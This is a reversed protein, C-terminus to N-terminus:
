LHFTFPRVNARKLSAAELVHEIYSWANEHLQRSAKETYASDADMHHM